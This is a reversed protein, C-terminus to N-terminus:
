GVWDSLITDVLTEAWQDSEIGLRGTLKRMIIPGTILDVATEIDLDARLDGREVGHRVLDALMERRPRIVHSAYRLGIPTKAAIEGVLWPFVEGARSDGLFSQMGKVSAILDSRINGTDPVEVVEVVAAVTDVLLEEKSDWRRYISAKSVGAAAAVADISVSALGVENLLKLTHDIVRADVSRDRPRGPARTM